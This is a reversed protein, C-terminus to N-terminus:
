LLIVLDLVIFIEIKIIVKYFQKGLIRYKSKAGISLQRYLNNLFTVVLKCDKHQDPQWAFVKSSVRSLKGASMYSFNLQISFLEVYPILSFDVQRRSFLFCSM